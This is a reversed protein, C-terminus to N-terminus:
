EAVVSGDTPADPPAFDFDVDDIDLFPSETGADDVATVAVDYRGDLGAAKPLTGVTIYTFGDADADPKPVEDYPTAKDPETNAPHFRIRNAVVDPALAQKFKIRANPGLSM